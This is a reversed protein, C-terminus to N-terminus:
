WYMAIFELELVPTDPEPPVAPSEDTPLSVLVQAGQWAKQRLVGVKDEDRDLDGHNAYFEDAVTNL